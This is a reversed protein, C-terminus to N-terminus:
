IIIYPIGDNRKFLMPGCNKTSSNWFNYKSNSTLFRAVVAYWECVFTWALFFSLVWTARNRWSIGFCLFPSSSTYAVVWKHTYVCTWLGVSAGRELRNRDLYGGDSDFPIGLVLRSESSYRPTSNWETCGWKGAWVLAKFFFPSFANDM